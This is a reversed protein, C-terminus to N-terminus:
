ENKSAKNILVWEENDAQKKALAKDWAEKTEEYSKNVFAGKVTLMQKETPFTLVIKQSNDFDKVEIKSGVVAPAGLKPRLFIVWQEPPGDIKKCGCALTGTGFQIIIQTSIV